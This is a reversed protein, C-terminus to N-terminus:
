IIAQRAKAANEPTFDEPKYQAHITRAIFFPATKNQPDLLLARESHAQAEAFKGERYVLAADNLAQKAQAEATSPSPAPTQALLPAALAITFAISTLFKM